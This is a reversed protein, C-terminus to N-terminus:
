GAAAGRHVGPAGRPRRRPRRSAPTPRRPTAQPRPDSRGLRRLLLVPAALVALLLGAALAVLVLPILAAVTLLIIPLALPFVAMTVIGGGVGWLAGEEALEAPTPRTSM